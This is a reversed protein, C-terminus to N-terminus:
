IGKIIDNYRKSAQLKTKITLRKQKVLTDIVSKWYSFSCTKNNVPRKATLNLAFRAKSLICPSIQKGTDTYYKM